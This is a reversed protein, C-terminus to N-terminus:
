GAAGTGCTPRAIGALLGLQAAAELQEALGGVPHAHPIDAAGEGRHTFKMRARLNCNVGSVRHGGVCQVGGHELVLREAQFKGAQGGTVAVAHVIQVDGLDGVERLHQLQDARPM